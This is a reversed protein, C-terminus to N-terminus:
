VRFVPDRHMKATLGTDRVRVTLAPDAKDTEIPLKSAPFVIDPGANDQTDRQITKRSPRDM